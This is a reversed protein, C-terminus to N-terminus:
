PWGTCGARQRKWYDVIILSVVVSADHPQHFNIGVSSAKSEISRYGIWVKPQLIIRKRGDLADVLAPFEM